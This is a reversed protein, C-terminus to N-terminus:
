ENASPSDIMTRNSDLGLWRSNDVRSDRTGSAGGLGVPLAWVRVLVRVGRHRDDQVAVGRERPLSDDGLRQVQLREVTVRNAARDVDDLVVLHSERRVQLVRPRGQM